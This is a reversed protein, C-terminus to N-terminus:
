TPIRHSWRPARPWMRNVSPTPNETKRRAITHVVSARTSRAEVHEKEDSGQELWGTTNPSPNKVIANSRNCTSCWRMPTTIPIDSTEMAQLM